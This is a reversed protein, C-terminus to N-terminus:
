ISMASWPYEKLLEPPGQIVNQQTGINTAAEFQSTNWVNWVHVIHMDITKITDCEVRAEEFLCFGAAM